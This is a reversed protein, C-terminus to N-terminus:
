GSGGSGFGRHTPPHATLVRGQSLLVTRAAPGPVQDSSLLPRPEGHKRFLPRLFCPRSPLEPGTEQHIRGWPGWGSSHERSQSPSRGADPLRSAEPHWFSSRLDWCPFPRDCRCSLTLIFAAIVSDRSHAPGKDGAQEDTKERERKNRKAKTGMERERESVLHSGVALEKHTRRSM